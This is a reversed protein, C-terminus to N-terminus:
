FLEGSSGIRLWSFGFRMMKKGRMGKMSWNIGLDGLNNRENADQPM